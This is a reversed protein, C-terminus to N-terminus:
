YYYEQQIDLCIEGLLCCVVDDFSVDKLNMEKEGSSEYISESEIM